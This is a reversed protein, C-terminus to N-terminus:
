DTEQIFDHPINECTVCIQLIILSSSITSNENWKINHSPHYRLMIYNQQNYIVNTLEM